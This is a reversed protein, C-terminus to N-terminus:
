GRVRGSARDCSEGDVCPVCESLTGFGVGFYWSRGGVDCWWGVLRAGRGVDLKQDWVDLLQWHVVGQREDVGFRGAVVVGVESVFVQM